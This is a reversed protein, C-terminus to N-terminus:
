YKWDSLWPSKSPGRDEAAKVAEDNMNQIRDDPAMDDPTWLDPTRLDPTRLDGIAAMIKGVWSKAEEPKVTTPDGVQASGSEDIARVDDETIAGASGGGQAQDIPM